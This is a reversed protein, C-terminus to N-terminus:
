ALNELLRELGPRVIIDRKGAGRALAEEADLGQTKMLYGAVVVPSRSRGAYCQVLVPGHNQALDALAAVARRFFRPDNGPGDELPVVAIAELGIESAEVGQLTRDLSLASKIGEEQLLDRNKAEVHNGIAIHDTIWNM